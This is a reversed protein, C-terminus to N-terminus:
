KLSVEYMIAYIIRIIELIQFYNQTMYFPFSTLQSSLTSSHSLGNKEKIFLQVHFNLYSNPITTFSFIYINM